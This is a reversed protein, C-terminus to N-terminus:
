SIFNAFTGDSVSLNAFKSFSSVPSLNLSMSEESLKRNNKFSETRMFRRVELLKEKLLWHAVHDFDLGQFKPVEDKIEQIIQREVKDLSMRAISPM